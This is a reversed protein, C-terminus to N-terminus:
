RNLRIASGPRPKAFCLLWLIASNLPKSLNRSSRLRPRPSHGMSKPTERFRNRSCNAAREAVNGSAAAVVDPFSACFSLETGSSAAARSKAVAPATVQAARCSTSITRTWSGATQSAARQKRYKCRSAAERLAAAEVSFSVHAGYQAGQIFLNCPICAPSFRCGNRILYAEQCVLSRCSNCPATSSGIRTGLAARPM